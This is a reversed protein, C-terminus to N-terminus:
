RSAEITSWDIPDPSSFITEPLADYVAIDTLQARRGRLEGRDGSLMIRGYRKWDAWPGTFAPESDAADPFYAWQEILKTERAVWVHYKNQPTVGVGTFTLRIVDAERGDPLTGPGLWGLTVGTDKLKYPMVLWYTDNIWSRMGADLMGPLETPDTVEVGGSWARGAGSALDIIVVYPQGSKPGTGEIRARGAHRDWVHRRAGFFDFRVYRTADWADRGGLRTMVVDALAVARPDSGALDFGPAPPNRGAAARVPRGTALEFREGEVAVGFGAARIEKSADSRRNLAPNTHNLHIFRVKARDEEPLAALRVMTDTILPHPVESLSRGPLEARAFFTGDLLAVDVGAVLDEISRDWADWADIDPLYLVSRDPGDIRFAVTETYEDRHPVPIPTVTIRDSLGAPSDATLPLFTINGLEVLQNWPANTSLFEKMRPMAGVLVGRAGMAERGLHMLGTYHGVHAHTLLIGSPPGGADGLSHLQEPFDPTADIMWRAGSVPDVIGLCAVRLKAKPDGWRSACCERECGAQPAGGDQAVGLVVAYPGRVVAFVLSAVLIPSM